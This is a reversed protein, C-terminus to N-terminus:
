PNSGNSLVTWCTTANMSRMSSVSCSVRGSMFYCNEETVLFGGDLSQVLDLPLLLPVLCQVSWPSPYWEVASHLVRRPWFLRRLPSWEDLPLKLFLFFGKWFLDQDRVASSLLDCDLASSFAMTLFAMAFPTRLSSLAIWAFRFDSSEESSSPSTFLNSM